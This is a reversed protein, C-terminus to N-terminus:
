QGWLELSLVSADALEEAIRSRNPAFPRDITKVINAGDGNRGFLMWKQQARVFVCDVPRKKCAPNTGKLTGLVGYNKGTTPGFIAHRVADVVSGDPQETGFKAAGRQVLTTWVADGQYLVSFEQVKGGALEPLDQDVM